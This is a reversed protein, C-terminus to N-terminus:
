SIVVTGAASCIEVSAPKRAYHGHALAKGVLWDIDAKVVSREVASDILAPVQAHRAVAAGVIAQDKFRDNM